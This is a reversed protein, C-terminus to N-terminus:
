GGCYDTTTGGNACTSVAAPSAPCELTGSCPYTCRRMFDAGGPDLTECVGGDPCESDMGGPCTTSLLLANVADCTTLGENVGCYARGTVGSLSIRDTLVVGLPQSCGPTAKLCYGGTRAAGEFMMPVCFNEAVSCNADSDCAECTAVAAAGFASCANTVPNCPNAGCATTETAACEVCQGVNTGTTACVLTGTIGGCQTSDDCAGCMGDAGCKAATPDTCDPDSLCAVCMGDSVRCLPTATPCVMGCPGADVVADPGTDGADGADGADAGGDALTCVFGGDALDERDYGARCTSCVPTGGDTVPPDEFAYGEDCEVTTFPVTNPCGSLLIAALLLAYSLHKM